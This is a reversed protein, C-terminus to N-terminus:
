PSRRFNEKEQEHKTSPVDPEETSESSTQQLLAFLNCSIVADVSGVLNFPRTSNVPFFGDGVRAWILPKGNVAKCVPAILLV